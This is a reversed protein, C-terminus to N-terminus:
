IIDSFKREMRVFAVAAALCVAIAFVGAYLIHGWGLDGRGLVSWRFAELLGAIPNLFFIPRLEVPVASAGYAVPSAYLLMQLLVPIVYQLDRYSVTLAATYTGIGVALTLLLVLWVPLLLLAWTAHIGYVAMLGFMLVTGVALDLATAPITSLPLLLRPFYIKTVLQTNGVVSASAKTVTSNFANWALLGVYSFVFYPVGDSPMGAVKGFVFAFIGAALVPQLLVWSVGLATQKYRLKVDRVALAAFLDRYRWMEAADLMSWGSRSQIVLWPDRTARGFADRDVPTGEVRGTTETESAM